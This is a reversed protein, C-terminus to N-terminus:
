LKYMRLHHAKILLDNSSIKDAYKGLVENFKEPLKTKFETARASVEVWFDSIRFGSSEYINVYERTSLKSFLDLEIYRHGDQFNELDSRYKNVYDFYDDTDLFIHNYSSQLSDRGSFHDGSACYWLPGYNAYVVGGRKLVRHTEIMVGSLNKCHEYVADSAVLDVSDSSLGFNNELPSAIFEVKVSYKEMCYNSIEAWSDFSYLDVAVISKPKLEAWSIVDWGNGTGQILINANRIDIGASAWRRRFSIPYGRESIIKTIGDLNSNHFALTSSAKRNWIVRMLPYAISKWIPTSSRSVQEAWQSVSYNNISTM